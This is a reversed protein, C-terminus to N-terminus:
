GTFRSRLWCNTIPAHTKPKVGQDCFYVSSILTIELTGDGPVTITLGRELTVSQDRHTTLADRFLKRVITGLGARPAATTPKTPFNSM